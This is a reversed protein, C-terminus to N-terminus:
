TRVTARGKVAQNTCSDNWPMKGNREPERIWNSSSSSNLNTHQSGIGFACAIPKQSLSPAMEYNSRDFGTHIHSRGRRSKLGDLVGFCLM